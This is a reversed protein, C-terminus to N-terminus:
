SPPLHESNFSSVDHILLSPGQRNLAVSIILVSV